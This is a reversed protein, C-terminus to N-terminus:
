IYATLAGMGSTVVFRPGLNRRDLLRRPLVLAEFVACPAALDTGLELGLGALNNGALVPAGAAEGVSIQIQLELLVADMLEDGDPEQRMGAQLRRYAEGCLEAILDRYYPVRGRTERFLLHM